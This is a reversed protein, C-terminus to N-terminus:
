GEVPLDDEVFLLRRFGADLTRDVGRGDVGVDLLAIIVQARGVEEVYGFEGLDRKLARAHGVEVRAALLALHLAGEGEMTHRPGDHEVRAKEALALVWTPVLAGSEVAGGRDVALVEAERPIFRELAAAQEDAVVHRDLDVDFANLLASCGPLSTERKGQM